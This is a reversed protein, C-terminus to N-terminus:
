AGQFAKRRNTLENYEPRRYAASGYKLTLKAIERKYEDPSLATPNSAAGGASADKRLGSAAPAKDHGSARYYADLQKVMAVAAIQGAAFAANVQRKESDDANDQVWQRLANWRAAGGVEAVVANLVAQGKVQAQAYSAKAAAIYTAYGKAKNGMQKLAEELVTFDGQHAAVIGPHTPGLGRQGVFQLALDLGVDGTPDYVVEIEQDPEKEKEPPTDVNLPAPVEPAAPAAPVEPTGAQPAEPTGPTGVPVAPTGPIAPATPAAPITM